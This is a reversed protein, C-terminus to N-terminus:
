PHCIAAGMYLASISNQSPLRYSTIRIQVFSAIHYRQNAGEGSAQDGIPVIITHSILADLASRVSNANSVGPRGFVWDGVSLIHGTPNNPDIYNYSNGPVTLSYVLEPM